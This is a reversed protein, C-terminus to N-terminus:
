IEFTYPEGTPMFWYDMICANYFTVKGDESVSIEGASDHIHGSFVFKLNKLNRIRMELTRSGVHNDMIDQHVEDCRGYVPGHTILIETDDPIKQWYQDLEFDNAM